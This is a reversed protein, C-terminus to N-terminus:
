LSFCFFFIRNPLKRHNYYEGIALLLFIVVTFEDLNNIINSLKINWQSVFVAIELQFPLILLITVLWLRVLRNDTNNEIDEKINLKKLSEQPYM